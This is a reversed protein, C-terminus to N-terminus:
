KAAGVIRDLAAGYRGIGEGVRGVLEKTTLLEPVPDLNGAVGVGHELIDATYERIQRLARVVRNAILVVVPIVVLVFGALALWWLVLPIPGIGAIM